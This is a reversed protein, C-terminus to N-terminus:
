AHWYVDISVGPEAVLLSIPLQSSRETKAQRLVNRKTDGAIYLIRHASALVAALSLSIREHAAEPPTVHLYHAAEPALAASLQPAHPFLSAIHGDEGMGLLVLDLAQFEVNASEVASDIDGADQYLGRFDARAAHNKLLHERVLRENSDPHDPPVFREDVLRIRVRSWDLVLESLREFLPIPSRGGSIALSFRGTNAIGRRIRQEINESLAELCVEQDPYEHWM